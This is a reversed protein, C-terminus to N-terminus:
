FLWHNKRWCCDSGPYVSDYSFHFIKFLDIRQQVNAHISLIHDIFIYISVFRIYTTSGNTSGWKRIEEVRSEIADRPGCKTLRLRDNLVRYRLKVGFLREFRTYPIPGFSYPSDVMTWMGNLRKYYNLTNAGERDPSSHRDRKWISIFLVTLNSKSRTPQVFFVLSVRADTPYRTIWSSPTRLFYACNPSSRL